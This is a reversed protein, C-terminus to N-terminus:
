SLKVFLEAALNRASEFSDVKGELQADYVRDLVEKFGQGPSQGMDILTQGTILPEPALGIGDNALQILEARPSIWDTPKTAEALMLGENAHLRAATRKRAAISLTDWQEAMTYAIEFVHVLHWQESNTLDLDWAWYKHKWGDKMKSLKWQGNNDHRWAAVATIAHADPNLATLTRLSDNYPAYDFIARDLLHARLLQVARVRSPHSMMRRIEHGIREVSVGTLKSAHAKIADSTKPDITLGYRAAFRVARLARLHDEKLRADPDGVARLIKAEIDAQGNVFDIITDGDDHPDLFLANITFDRRQADEEPSSYHVHDPRRADSYPGDSRFTAVEITPGFDRVLMVGFAAGVAATKTFLEAIHEPHASTAVDYDKPVEGLLQDRVCGGALYAIHDAKRLTHIISIAADRENTQAHLNPM